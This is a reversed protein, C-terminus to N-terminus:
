SAVGLGRKLVALQTLAQKAVQSDVTRGPQYDAAVRHAWLQRIATKMLVPKATGRAALTHGLLNPLEAHKPNTREHPGVHGEGELRHAVFSYAAYYARSVCPRFMGREELLVAAAEQESGIQNWTAM